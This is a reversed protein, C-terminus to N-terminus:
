PKSSAAGGDPIWSQLAPVLPQLGDQIGTAMEVEASIFCIHHVPRHRVQIDIEADPLSISRVKLGTQLCPFQGVAADGDPRQVADSVKTAAATITGTSVCASTATVFAALGDTM